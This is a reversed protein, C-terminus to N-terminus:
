ATVTAQGRREACSQCMAWWAGQGNFGAESRAKTRRRLFVMLVPGGHRSRGGRFSCYGSGGATGPGFTSADYERVTGHKPAQTTRM